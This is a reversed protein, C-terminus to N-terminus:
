KNRWLQCLLRFFYGTFDRDEARLSNIEGFIVVEKAAVDVFENCSVECLWM